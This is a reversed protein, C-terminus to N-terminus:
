EGIFKSETSMIFDSTMPIFSTFGSGDDIAGCVRISGKRDDYFAQIEINYKIGTKGIIEYVDQRELLYQLDGYDKKRYKELESEIIQRAEIKDM